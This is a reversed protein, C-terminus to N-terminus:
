SKDHYFGVKRLVEGYVDANMKKSELLMASRCSDCVLITNQNVFRTRVDFERYCQICTAKQRMYAERKLARCRPCRKPVELGRMEYRRQEETTYIFIEGCTVCTIDMDACAQNENSIIEKM